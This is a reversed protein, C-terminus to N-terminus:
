RRRGDGDHLAWEEFVQLVLVLGLAVLPIALALAMMSGPRRPTAGPLPGDAAPGDAAVAATPELSFAAVRVPIGIMDLDFPRVTATTRGGDHRLDAEATVARSAVAVVDGQPTRLHGTVVGSVFAGHPTILLRELRLSGTLRGSRGDPSRFSGEIPTHSVDDEGAGPEVLHLHPEPRTTSVTTM